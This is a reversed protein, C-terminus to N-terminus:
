IIRRNKYKFFTSFNNLYGKGAIIDYQILELDNAIELQQSNLDKKDVSSNNLVDTLLAYYPSVKSNTHALLEASFDSSNVLPYNLKQTPYNSWIFYDTQYQSEPNTDFINSSYFGPLHDGYFVVTIKKDIKSLQELFLQTDQDTKNILRIYSNLTSQNESSLTNLTATLNEPSDMIWPTHNQMTIVSFFQSKSTDINNLINQYTTEDSVNAGYTSVNQLTDESGALFIQKNFGLSTYVKNRNYNSAGSPHIVICSNQEFIDSITPVINMRPFVETMLVSVSSSMNYFPLGTLTQFEMNATGGGFGDSKMLGSTTNSKINDLNSLIGESVSLGEIRRPDSFSESLIYIVTQDSIEETREKNIESARSEYKKVLKEITEKSYGEPEEMMKLTLQKTWVYALSKYRANVGFGLWEIDYWNNLRSLIPVGEVVKSEEATQFVALAVGGVSFLATILLLRHKIQPIIKNSLIYRQGLIAILIVLLIGVIIYPLSTSNVYELLQSPNLLWVFDTILVPENRLTFKLSNAYALLASLTVILASTLFYRNILIYLLLFLLTFFLIQYITASPFIYRNLLIENKAVGQQLFYNLITAIVTSTFVALSFNAKNKLMGKISYSAFFVLVGTGIQILVLVSLYKTM